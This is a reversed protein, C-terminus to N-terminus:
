ETGDLPRAVDGEEGVKLDGVLYLGVAAMCGVICLTVTVYYRHWSVKAAM